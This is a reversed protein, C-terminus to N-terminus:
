QNTLLTFMQFCFKVLQLIQRIIVGDGGYISAPIINWRVREFRCHSACVAYRPITWIKPPTKYAIDHHLPLKKCSATYRKKLM